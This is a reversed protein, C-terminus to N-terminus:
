RNWMQQDTAYAMALIHKIDETVRSIEKKKIQCLVNLNSM